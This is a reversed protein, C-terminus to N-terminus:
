AWISWVRAICLLSFFFVIHVTCQETYENIDKFDVFHNKKRYQVSVYKVVHSVPKKHSHLSEFLPYTDAVIVSGPLRSIWVRLHRMQYHIQTRRLLRTRKLANKFTIFYLVKFHLPTIWDSELRDGVMLQWENVGCKTDLSLRLLCGLKM